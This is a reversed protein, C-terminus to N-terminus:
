DYMHRYPRTTDHKSWFDKALSINHDNGATKPTQTWFSKHREHWISGYLEGGGTKKVIDRYVLDWHTRGMVMDPLSDLHKLLWKRTFAFLDLGGDFGGAAIDVLALKTPTADFNFRYAYASGKAGVLRVLSATMGTSFGVDSNSLVVIDSEHNTKKLAARLMDKVFPVPKEEGLETQSNRKFETLYKIGRGDWRGNAYEAKWSKAAAINRRRDDSSMKWDPWVHVIKGCPRITKRISEIIEDPDVQNYPRTLLHNPARLSALWPSTHTLAVVPVASAKALHLTATDVTVLAHARDMLGILDYLRDVKFQNLDVVNFEDLGEVLRAHLEPGKAYPASLGTLSTLVVPKSWDIRGILLAEREPSRRDFILPLQEWRGGKGVKEWSDRLFSESTQRHDMGRGYIQSVVAPRQQGRYQLVAEDISTYAGRFIERDAYSVGDLLGAFEASVCIALRRGERNAEEALPLINIIDGNRGLQLLTKSVM